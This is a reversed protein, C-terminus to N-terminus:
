LFECKMLLFTIINANPIENFESQLFKFLINQKLYCIEGFLKLLLICTILHNILILYM